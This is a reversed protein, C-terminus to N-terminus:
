VRYHFVTFEQTRVLEDRQNHFRRETTVFYGEGLRTKKKQSCNKMSLESRATDGPRLPIFFRCVAQVVAIESCDPPDILTSGQVLSQRLSQLLPIGTLGQRVGDPVQEGSKMYGVGLRAASGAGFFMSTAPAIIGGYRSSAAYSEDWYLPNWDELAECWLHIEDQRLPQAPLWGGSRSKGLFPRAFDPVDTAPSQGHASEAANLPLAREGSRSPLAM